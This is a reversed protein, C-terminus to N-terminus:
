LARWQTTEIKLRYGFWGNDLVVERAPRGVRHGGLYDIRITGAPEGDLREFSRRVLGNETWQESVQEGAVEVTPRAERPPSAGWPLRVHWMWTRQIDQLMYRPPFPLEREILPTFEVETGTQELVFAKTGFPTLGLVTLTGEHLQLVAEFEFKRSEFSGSLRQRAMFDAGMEETPILEGPYGAPASGPDAPGDLKAGESEVRPGEDRPGRSGAGRHCGSAAALSALLAARVLSPALPSPSHRMM